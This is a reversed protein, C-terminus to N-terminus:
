RILAPSLLAKIANEGIFSTLTDSCTRLSSTELAGIAQGVVVEWPKKSNAISCILQRIQKIKQHRMRDASGVLEKILEALELKFHLVQEFSIILPSDM